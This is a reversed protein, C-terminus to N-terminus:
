QKIIHSEIDKKVELEFTAPAHEASALNRAALGLNRAQDPMNALQRVAIVYALVDEPDKILIGTNPKVIDTVGGIDPAIAPLALLAAEVLLNPLGDRETTYILATYKHTRLSLLSNFPGRYHINSSHSFLNPSYDDQFSGFVDITINDNELEHAIQLLLDPRKQKAIRGAWLFRRNSNTNTNLVPIDPAEIPQHHVTFRSTDFAYETHLQEIIRSNDTFIKTLQPYVRPIGTHVHGAIHGENDMDDCFANSFLIYDNHELLTKYSEVLDFGLSSHLIHLTKAGSQIVFRILVQLQLDKSLGQALEGFPIFDVNDALRTAWEYSGLETAIVTIKYGDQSLTNAYNIAFLDAGGRTLYPVFLIYDSNQHTHRILSWYFLGLEYLESEYYATKALIDHTPFLQNEILQAQKWSNILWDPLTVNAIQNSSHHRQKLARGVRGVHRGIVPLQRGVRYSVRLSSIALEKGRKQLSPPSDVLSTTQAILTPADFSRFLKFSQLDTYHMTHLESKQLTMVSTDKRRVFLITKPVVNHTVGAALTQCNFHWDEPGYGNLNPMFPFRLLLAKPALIASDWRNAQLSILAEHEIDFSNFKHWVISQNGFNVSYETHLVTDISSTELQQYAKLLWNDSMLDDADILAIYKGKAKAIGFNRSAALDGFDITYAHLPLVNTRSFYEQTEQNPRDLTAIVEYPIHNEILPKLAQAVSLLTKHAILGESHAAIIVSITPTQKSNVSVIKDYLRIRISNSRPNCYTISSFGIKNSITVVTDKSLSLGIALEM